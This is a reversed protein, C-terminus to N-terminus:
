RVPLSSLAECYAYARIRIYRYLLVRIRRELSKKDRGARARENAHSHRAFSQQRKRIVPARM